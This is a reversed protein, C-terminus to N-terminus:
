AIKGGGIRVRPDFLTYSIDGVIGALLGLFQNFVTILMLMPYNRGNFAELYIRGTGSVRFIRETIIGGSMVGIIGIFIGPLFPVMANKLAHRFTAQKRTLGKSRALLIYDQTLQETLEARVSRTLGPISTITLVIVPFIYSKIGYWSGYLKIESPTAIQYHQVWGLKFHFIYQALVAVVFFPVSIFFIVGISIVTDPWKNKYLAATVGLAIALPISLLYPVINIKISAPIKSFYDISVDWGTIPDVGFSGSTFINRVWLGFQVIIPKDWGELAKHKEYWVDDQGLGSIHNDPIMKIFVFYIFVTIVFTFLMLSFRKMFYKFM